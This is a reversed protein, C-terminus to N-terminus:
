IYGAYNTQNLSPQMTTACHDCHDCIPRVSTACLDCLPRVATAFHDCLPRLIAGSNGKGHRWHNTRLYVLRSCTTYPIYHVTLPVVPTRDTKTPQHEPSPESHTVPAEALRPRSTNTLLNKTPQHEPSPESHTVHAEALRPRSTNPPLNKTPQHEPSPESHTVPAETLRPRSTNPPLNQIHSLPKLWGQDAPTRPLNQIHSLLKLWGQDAPTRPFTRNKTVSKMHRLRYRTRSVGLLNRTRIRGMDGIKHGAHRDAPRDTHTQRFPLRSLRPSMIDRGAPARTWPGVSHGQSLCKVRSGERYPPTVGM